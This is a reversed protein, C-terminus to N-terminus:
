KSSRSIINEDKEVESIYKLIISCQEDLGGGVYHCNCIPKPHLCYEMPYIDKVRENTVRRKGAVLQEKLTALRLGPIESNSVSLLVPFMVETIYRGQECEHTVECTEKKHQCTVVDLILPLKLENALYGPVQGSDMYGAQKGTLILDPQEKKIFEALTEAILKPNFEQGECHLCVVEDYGSAYIKKAAIKSINGVTVAICTVHEEEDKMRLALELAIEDFCNIIRGVYSVDPEKNFVQWDSPIMKELDHLEKFCVIVKM